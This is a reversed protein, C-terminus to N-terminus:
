ITKWGVFRLIAPSVIRKSDMYVFFQIKIRYSIRPQAQLSWITYQHGIWCRSHVKSICISNFLTHLSIFPFLIRSLIDSVRFEPFIYPNVPSLPHPFVTRNLVMNDTKCHKAKKMFIASINKM